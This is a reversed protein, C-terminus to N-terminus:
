RRCDRPVPDLVLRIGGASARLELRRRLLGRHRHRLHDALRPRWRPLVQGRRRGVLRQQERGLRHLHRRLAGPGAGRRAPHAGRWLAAPQQAAVARPFLGGRRRDAEARLRDLLLVVRHRGAVPERGHHARGQPVADALLLQVRGGPQGGGADLQCQLARVLRLLLFRGAADRGLADGRRGLVHAAGAAAVPDSAGDALYAHDRGAGRDGGPHGNRPRRHRHLALGELGAGAGAGIRSGPWRDVHRGAGRAGTPNEPSISRSEANSLRSLHELM